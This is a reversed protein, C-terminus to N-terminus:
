IVFAPPLSPTHLRVPSKRVQGPDTEVAGSRNCGYFDRGFQAVFLGPMKASLPVLVQRLAM